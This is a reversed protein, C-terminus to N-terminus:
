AKSKCHKLRLSAKLLGKEPHESGPSHRQEWSHVWTWPPPSLLSLCSSAAYMSPPAPMTSTKEQAVEGHLKGQDWGLIALFLCLLLSPGRSFAKLQEHYSIANTHSHRNNALLMWLGLLDQRTRSYLDQHQKWPRSDSGRGQDCSFKAMPVFFFMHISSHLPFGRPRVSPSYILTTKQFTCATKNQSQNFLLDM